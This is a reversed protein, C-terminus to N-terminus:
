HHSGDTLDALARRTAELRPDDAALTRRQRTLLDRYLDAAEDRRGQGAIIRALRNQTALTHPHDHGLEGRRITLCGEAEAEAEAHRGMAELVVALGFRTALYDHYSSSIQDAMVSRLREEAEAYRQEHFYRWGLDHGMMLVAGHRRGLATEAEARIEEIEATGGFVWAQDRRVAFTSPHRAGLRRTRGEVARALFDRTLEETQDDRAVVIQEILHRGARHLLGSMDEGDAAPDTLAAIVRIHPLLRRWVPVVEGSTHDTPAAAALIRVADRRASETERREAGGDDAGGDRVVLQVLRHLTIWDEGLNIMSYAALQALAIDTETEGIDASLHGLVERPLPVPACWSMIRLLRLALPNEAVLRDLTIQWVRALTAEPSGATPRYAILRAREAGERWLQLYRRPTKRAEKIYAGVLKIALPLHGMERVLETAEALWQADPVPRGASHTLLEVADDEDLVDLLLENDRFEDWGHGLRSTILFWGAPLRATLLKAEEPDNVNDLVLLWDQHGALWQVAREALVSRTGDAGATDLGLAAALHALGDEILAPSDATISWIPGLRRVQEAAYRHALTTKGIGGLGHVITVGPGARLAALEEERGVFKDIRPIRLVDKPDPRVPASAEFTNIFLQNHDGIVATGSDGGVDISNGEAPSM